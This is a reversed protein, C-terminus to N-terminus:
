AGEGSHTNDSRTLAVAIQTPGFCRAMSDSKPRSRELPFTIRGSRRSLRRIYLRSRLSTAAKLAASAFRYERSRSPTSSAYGPQLCGPASRIPWHAPRSSDISAMTKSSRGANEGDRPMAWRRSSDRANACTFLQTLKHPFAFFPMGSAGSKCHKGLLRHSTGALSLVMAPLICLACRISETRAGSCPGVM